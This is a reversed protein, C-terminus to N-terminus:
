QGNISDDNKLMFVTAAVVDEDVASFGAAGLGACVVSDLLTAGCACGATEGCDGDVEFSRSIETKSQIDMVRARNPQRPVM